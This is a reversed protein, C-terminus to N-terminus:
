DIYRYSGFVIGNYWEVVGDETMIYWTDPLYKVGDITITETRVLKAVYKELDGLEEEWYSLVLTAGLCGKIRCGLGWAIGISDKGEVVVSGRYGVNAAVSNDGSIRSMSDGGTNGSIGNCGTSVAASNTTTSSSLGFEGTNLALSYLSTNAAISMDGENISISRDDTTLSLSHDGSNQAISNSGFTVSASNNNFEDLISRSKITSIVDNYNNGIVLNEGDLNESIYDKAIEALELITIERLIEIRSACIKSDTFVLPDEKQEDTPNYKDFRGSLKVICYRSNSPPYYNFVDLPSLCAHFGTYCIDIDEDTEYTKGVEYQFDRCKLDKDFGKYAILETKNNIIEPFEFIM